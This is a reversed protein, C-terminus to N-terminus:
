NACRQNGTIKLMKDQVQQNKSNKEIFKRNMNKISKRKPKGNDDKHSASHGQTNQINIGQKNKFTESEM